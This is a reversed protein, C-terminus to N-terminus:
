DKSKIEKYVLHTYPVVGCIFFFKLTDDMDEIIGIEPIISEIVIPLLGLFVIIITFDAVLYKKLYAIEKETLLTLYKIKVFIFIIAKYILYEFYFFLLLIGLVLYPSNDKIWTSVFSYIDFNFGNEKWYSELLILIFLQVLILGASILIMVLIALFRHIYGKLSKFIKNRYDSSKEIKNFIMLIFPFWIVKAIINNSFSLLILM